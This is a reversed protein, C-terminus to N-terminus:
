LTVSATSTGPFRGKPLCVAPIKAAEVRPVVVFVATAAATAAVLM